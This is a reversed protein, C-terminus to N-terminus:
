LSKRKWATQEAEAKHTNSHSNMVVETAQFKRSMKYTAAAGIAAM